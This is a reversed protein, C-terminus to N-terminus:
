IVLFNYNCPDKQPYVIRIRYKGPDPDPQGLFVPDSRIQIWLSGSGCCQSLTTDHCITALNAKKGQENYGYIISLMIFLRCIM